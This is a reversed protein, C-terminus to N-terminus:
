HTSAAAAPVALQHKGAAQLRFLIAQVMDDNLSRQIEEVQSANGVSNAADYSYERSMNIRQDPLLTRGSADTVNFQVQYRVAYETIRVYGGASLTDTSFAAVPVRLEAVGPGSNDEVSVGADRLARTLMRPLDGGGNVTIHVHQMSAPLAASERLHFGCAGLALVSLLLSAHFLHRAKLARM